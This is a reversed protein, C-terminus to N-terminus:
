RSGIKGGLSEMHKQMDRMLTLLGIGGEVDWIQRLKGKSIMAFLLSLM